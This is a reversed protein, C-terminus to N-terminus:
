VASTRATGACSSPPPAAVDAVTSVCEAHAGAMVMTYEHEGDMDRVRVRSGVLVVIRRQVTATTAPETVYPM